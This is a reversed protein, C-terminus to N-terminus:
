SAVEAKKCDTYDTNWIKYFLDYKEKINEMLGDVKEPVTFLGSPARETNSNLKLSNKTLVRLLPGADTQHQLFGLPISNVQREITKAFTQWGLAHLKTQKM